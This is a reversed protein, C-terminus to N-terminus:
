LGIRLDVYSVSEPVCMKCFGGVRFPNHSIRKDGRDRAERPVRRTMPGSENRSMPVTRWVRFFRDTLSLFCLTLSQRDSDAALRDFVTVLTWPAAFVSDWFWVYEVSLGLQTNGTNTQGLSLRHEFNSNLICHICFVAHLLMCLMCSCVSHLSYDSYHICDHNLRSYHFVTRYETVFLLRLGKTEYFVFWLRLSAFHSWLRNTSQYLSVLSAWGSPM